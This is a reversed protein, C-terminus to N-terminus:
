QEDVKFDHSECGCYACFGEPDIADLYHGCSLCVAPVVSKKPKPPTPKRKEEVFVVGMGTSKAGADITQRFIDFEERSMALLGLLNKSPMSHVYVRIYRGEFEHTIRFNM